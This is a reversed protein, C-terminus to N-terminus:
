LDEEKFGLENIMDERCIEGNEYAELLGKDDEQDIASGDPVEWVEVFDSDIHGEGGRKVYM